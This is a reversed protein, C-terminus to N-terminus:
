LKTKNEVPKIKHDTEYFGSGKFNITGGTGIQKRMLRNCKTCTVPVVKNMGHLRDITRKCQPCKYTYTPM